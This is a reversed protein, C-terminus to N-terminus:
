MWPCCGRTEIPLAYPQLSKHILVKIIVYKLMLPSISKIAKQFALPEKSFGTKNFRVFCYDYATASTLADGKAALLLLKRRNYLQIPNTGIMM